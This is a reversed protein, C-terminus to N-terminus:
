MDLDFCLCINFCNIRGLYFKYVEFTNVKIKMFLKSYKYNCPLKLVILKVANNDFLTNCIDIINIGSLHLDLAKDHTYDYDRWPPDIFVIDQKLQEYIKIYDECFITYKNPKIKYISINNTLIDCTTKNIEIANVKFGELLFGITNGGVNSTADTITYQHPKDQIHKAIIKAMKKAYYPKTISYIGEHTIKLANKDIFYDPQIFFKWPDCHIIRTLDDQNM